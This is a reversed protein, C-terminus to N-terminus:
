VGLLDFTWNGGIQESQNTINFNSSDLTLKNSSHTLTVDSSNFDIIGGNGLYFHSAM